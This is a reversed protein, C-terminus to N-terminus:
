TDVIVLLYQRSSPLGEIFDIQISRCEKSIKFKGHIQQNNKIKTIICSICSACIVKVIRKLDKLSMFHFISRCIKKLM